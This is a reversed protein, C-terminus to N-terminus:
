LQLCVESVLPQIGSWEGSPSTQALVYGFFSQWHSCTLALWSAALPNYNSVPTSDGTQPYPASAVTALKVAASLTLPDLSASNSGLLTVIAQLEEVTLIQLASPTSAM